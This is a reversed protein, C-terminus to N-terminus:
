VISGAMSGTTRLAHSQLWLELIMLIWVLEGYYAAHVDRHMALTRKLFDARFLGRSELRDLSDLALRNLGEHKRTWVGFPLGFGHKKKDIIEDPLFGRVARRFFWRLEGSRVKWDPPLSCALDVIREDLLPFRPDIGAAACMENVKVLDNDHLTFRWDLALMRDIESNALSFYEERVLRLPEARDATALVLPDFVEVPDHRHLFNYSQLRDPLPVNSQDIYNRLKRLPRAPALRTAASVAPEVLGTRAWRPLRQYREFLMQKAYRSNGGFLEDGGDGALLQGFGHERAFRACHYVALASSNAFPQAMGAVIAPLSDLVEEPTLEHRHWHLGFHEAATRAYHSEDYESEAFGISFAHVDNASRVQSAIGAVTSSDLGGSLFCGIPGPAAPLSDTVAARLAEFLADRAASGGPARTGWVPQWYRTVTDSGEQVVLLRAIQLARVDAYITRPAPVVHFYVYDYLAQPDLAPNPGLTAAIRGLDTSVRIKGGARSYYLRCRGIRDTAGLVRGTRGDIVCAAFPGHLHAPFADGHREFLALLATAAGHERALDALSSDAWRPQGSVLARVGRDADFAISTAQFEGDDSHSAGSPWRVPDVEAFLHRSEASM